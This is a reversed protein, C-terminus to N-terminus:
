EIAAQLIQEQTLAAGYIRVEDLLGSFFATQATGSYVSGMQVNQSLSTEIALANNYIVTQQGGDVYLRIEDVSPSGDNDLVAAVHHWQEDAVSISGQIYGGWVAAALKGDAQLRFMWKQGTSQNGWSIITQEKGNATAKIWATCTRSAKGWVGMYDVVDVYDDVGDLKLANNRQGAVWPNDSVNRTRGYFGSINDSVITGSTEDMKWRSIPSPLSPLVYSEEIWHEAVVAFDVLDVKGSNDIDIGECFNNSL